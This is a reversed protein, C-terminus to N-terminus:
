WLGGTRIGVGVVVFLVSVVTVAVIHWAMSSMNESTVKPLVVLRAHLAVIVLLALLALKAVILMPVQAGARLGEGFGQMYSAALWIGTIIQIALAHMGAKEYSSEFDHIMKPDRARMAKPLIAIALVLHGGTWITAGLIHLTVLIKYLM